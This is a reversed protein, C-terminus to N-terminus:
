IQSPSLKDEAPSQTKRVDSLLATINCCAFLPPPPDLLPAQKYNVAVFACGAAPVALPFVENLHRRRKDM